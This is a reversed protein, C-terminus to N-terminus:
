SVPRRELVVLKVAEPPVGCRPCAGEEAQAPTWWQGCPECWLLTFVDRAGQTRRALEATACWKAQAPTLHSHRCSWAAPSAPGPRLVGVYAAVGKQVHSFGPQLEDPLPRLPKTVV